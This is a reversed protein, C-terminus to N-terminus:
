VTQEVAKEATEEEVTLRTEEPSDSMSLAADTPEPEGPPQSRSIATDPVNHQEQSRLIRRRHQARAIRDHVQLTFPPPYLALGCLTGSTLCSLFPVLLPELRWCCAVGHVLVCILGGVLGFILGSGGRALWTSEIEEGTKPDTFTQRDKSM